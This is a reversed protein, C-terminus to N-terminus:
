KKFSVVNELERHVGGGELFKEWENKHAPCYHLEPGIEAAHYECLRRDCTQGPGVPFDCLYDAVDGCEELCPKGLRGCFFGKIKRESDYQPYCSM